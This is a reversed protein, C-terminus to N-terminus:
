WSHRPSCNFAKFSYTLTRESTTPDLHEEFRMCMEFPSIMFYVMVIVAATGVMRIWYNELMCEGNAKM